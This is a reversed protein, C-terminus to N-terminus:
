RSVDFELGLSLMLSYRPSRALEIGNYLYRDAVPFGLATAEVRFPGRGLAGSGSVVPLLTTVSGPAVFILSRFDSIAIGGGALWRVWMRGAPERAGLELRSTILRRDVDSHFENRTDVSGAARLQWSGRRLSLEIQAFEGSDIDPALEAGGSVGIALWTRPGPATPAVVATVDPAPPTAGPPAVPAATASAIQAGVILAFADAVAGCDDSDISRAAIRGEGEHWIALRAPSPSEIAVTWEVLADAAAIAIGEAELAAEADARAPCDGALELRVAPGAHAIGGALVCALTALAGAVARGIIEGRM